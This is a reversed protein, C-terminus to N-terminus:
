IRLPFSDLVVGKRVLPTGCECAFSGPLFDCKNSDLHGQFGEHVEVLGVASADGAGGDVDPPLPFLAVAPRSGLDFTGHLLRADCSTVLSSGTAEKLHAVWDDALGYTYSLVGETSKAEAACVKTFPSTNRAHSNYCFADGVALFVVGGLTAASVSTGIDIQVPAFGAGTDIDLLGAYVGKDKAAFVLARAGGGAGACAGAAGLMVVAASDAAHKGQWLCLDPMTTAPGPQGNLSVDLLRYGLTCGEDTYLQLVVASTDDATVIAAALFTRSSDSTWGGVVPTLDVGGGEGVAVGYLQLLSSKDAVLV